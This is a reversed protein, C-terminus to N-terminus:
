RNDGDWEKTNNNLMWKGTDMDLSCSSDKYIVHATDKILEEIEDWDATEIM